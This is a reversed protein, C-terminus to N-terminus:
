GISLVDSASAMQGNEYKYVRGYKVGIHDTATFGIPGEAVGNTDQAPAHADLAAKMKDGPCPFGCAKLANAILDANVWGLTADEGNPDGGADKIAAAASQVGPSSDTGYKFSRVVFYNPNNVEKMLALGSGGHFNVVQGKWGQQALSRMLLAPLEGYIGGIIYNAGSQVVRQAAPSMDDPAPVALPEELVMDWGEQEVLQKAEARLAKGAASEAGFVAVKPKEGPKVLTKLFNVEIKADDDFLMDVGYGYPHALIERTPAIITIPLKAEDAIKVVADAVNSVTFGAVVSPKVTDRFEIFNATAKAADLGTDDRAVINVPHGNIGGNKNLQGFYGKMGDLTGVPFAAVAGTLGGNFGVVYPDGTAPGGAASTAPAASGGSASTAPAASGPAATAPASTAGATAPAASGSATGSAGGSGSSGCAALVVAGTLAVSLFPIHRNKM